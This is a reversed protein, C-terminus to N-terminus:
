ISESIIQFCHEEFRPYKNLESAFRTKPGFKLVSYIIAALKCDLIGLHPKDNLFENEQLITNLDHLLNTAKYIILEMEQDVKNKLEGNLLHQYESECYQAISRNRNDFQFRTLLSSLSQKITLKTLLTTENTGLYLEAQVSPCLEYLVTIVWFDYLVSDVALCKMMQDLSTRTLQLDNILTTSNVTRRNSSDQELFIPLENDYSAHYSVVSIYNGSNTYQPPPPTTRPFCLGNRLNIILQCSLCIPDSPLLVTADNLYPSVNYVGLQFTSNLKGIPTKTLLAFKKGEGSPPVNLSTTYEKLPFTEFLYKAPLPITWITM